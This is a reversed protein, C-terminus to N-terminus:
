LGRKCLELRVWEFLEVLEDDLAEENEVIEKVREVLM